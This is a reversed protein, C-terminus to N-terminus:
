YLTSRSTSTGTWCSVITICCCYYTCFTMIVTSNTISTCISFARLTNCISIQSTTRTNFCSWTWSTCISIRCIQFTHRTFAWTFSTVWTCKITYITKVSKPFIITNTSCAKIITSFARTSACATLTSICKYPITSITNTLANLTQIELIIFTILFTSNSIISM